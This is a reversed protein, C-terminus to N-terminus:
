RLLEALIQRGEPWAGLERDSGIHGQPGVGRVGAHWRDALAAARAESLLPDDSSHVVISPFPLPDAPIPTFEADVTGPEVWDDEIDAPAVLLAAAVPGSHEAAWHAVVVGALSHAVLIAPASSANIQRDLASVWDERTGGTWDAQQVWECRDDEAAWQHHWHGEGSGGGGPVLLLRMADLDDVESGDGTGEALAKVALLNRMMNRRQARLRGAIIAEEKDPAMEIVISLGSSGPGIRYHQRLVTGDGRALLEFGWRAASDQVDRVAWSFTREPEWSTVYSETSWEGLADNSNRGRIVSGLGPGGSPHEGWTAEDLENSFRSPLTPDAVLAWVVAPPADVLISVATAPGDTYTTVQRFSGAPRSATSRVRAAPAEPGDFRSFGLAM